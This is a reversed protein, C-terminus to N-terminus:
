EWLKEGRSVPKKEEIYIKAMKGNINSEIPTLMKMAEILCLVDGEAINDGVTVFLTSVIGQIPSVVIDIKM